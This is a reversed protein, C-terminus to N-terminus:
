YIWFFTMFNVTTAEKLKYSNHETVQLKLHMESGVLQVAVGLKETPLHFRVNEIVQLM